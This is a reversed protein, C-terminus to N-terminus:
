VVNFSQFRIVYYGDSIHFLVDIGSIKWKVVLLTLYYVVSQIFYFCIFHPLFV